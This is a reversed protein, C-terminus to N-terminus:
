PTGEFDDAFIGDSVVVIAGNMDFSVAHFDCYFGYIGANAITFAPQSSGSNQNTIPSSADPTKV